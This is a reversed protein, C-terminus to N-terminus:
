KEEEQINRSLEAEIEETTPLINQLRQPLSKLLEYQSIGMPSTVRNLAYEAIIKDKYECLLLGITPEDIATKLQADVASLYFNLQGTHEPKFEGRKIEIVVYCHLKTNYMLLDIEFRRKSVYIPYNAGYLAFGQGLEMLFHKVHDILGKQIEKEHADEAIDLFHFKYPDKILEQALASQYAPLKKDFNTTKVAVTSQREYLLSQIQDRLQRYSWNNEIAQNAYWQKKNLDKINLLVVHHTWTLQDPLAQGFEANPYSRAFNCMSKLNTRSFGSNDKFSKGLDIALNDFLKDGWEAKEQEQLILKGVEWYFFILEKNVSISAKLKASNLRSKIDALLQSYGSDFYLNNNGTQSMKNSM